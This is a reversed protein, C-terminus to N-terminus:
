SGFDFRLRYKNVFGHTDMPFESMFAFSKPREGEPLHAQCFNQIDTVSSTDGQKKSVIALMMLKGLQDKINICIARDIGPCDLMKKEVESPVVANNRGVTCLNDKRDLFRVVGEKDVDVYDGTFFWAGRFNLKTADKNNLYSTAVQGGSVLLQGRQTKTTIIDDGNEDIVRTKLGPLFRGISDFPEPAEFQRGAVAWCTEVSGYFKLIRCENYYTNAVDGVNASLSSYEPTISRMTPIKLNLNKFANLWEELILGRMVVRSVKAELLEKVLDEPINIDTITVSCGNLLPFMLGHIFYFSQGLSAQFTFFNDLNNTRYINKLLLCAQQIMGHTYAIVKRPGSTGATEFLAVVDTDSASMSVPLRYTTDYEGWRRQECQIIPIHIGNNKAMEKARTLLDDSVIMVDVGLKKIMDVIDPEPASPDGFVATNKTNALAFFTYAMHPCNTMYIM